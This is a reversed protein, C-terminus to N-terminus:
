FPYEPCLIKNIIPLYQENDKFTKKKLGSLRAIIFNIESDEASCNIRLLSFFVYKFKSQNLSTIKDIYDLISSMKSISNFKNAIISNSKNHLIITNRLSYLYM